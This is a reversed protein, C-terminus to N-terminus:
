KLEATALNIAKAYYNESSVLLITTNAKKSTIYNSLTNLYALILCRM